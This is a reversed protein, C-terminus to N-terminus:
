GIFCQRNYQKKLMLEELIRNNRDDSSKPILKLYRNMSLYYKVSYLIFFVIGSVWLFILLQLVTFYTNHIVIKLIKSDCKIKCDIM